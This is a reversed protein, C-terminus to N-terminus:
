GRSVWGLFERFLSFPPNTIIMDSENASPPYRLVASTEMARWTSGNSTKSTSSVMMM